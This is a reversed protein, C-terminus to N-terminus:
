YLEVELNWISVKFNAAEMCTLLFIHDTDIGTGGSSNPKTVRNPTRKPKPTEPKSKNGAKSKKEAKPKESPAMKMFRNNRLLHIHSGPSINCSSLPHICHPPPPFCFLLQSLSFSRPSHVSDVTLSFFIESPNLLFPSFKM